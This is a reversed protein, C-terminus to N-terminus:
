LLLIEICMYDLDKNYFIKRILKLDLYKKSNNFIIEISEKSKIIDESIVHHNTLLCIMYGNKYKIKSIFGTGYGNDIIIECITRKFIDQSMYIEHGKIPDILLLSSKLSFNKCESNWNCGM